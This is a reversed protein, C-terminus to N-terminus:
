PDRAWMPPMTLIANRRLPGVEIRFWEGRDFPPFDRSAWETLGDAILVAAAVPPLRRILKKGIFIAWPLARQAFESFESAGGNLNPANFAPM